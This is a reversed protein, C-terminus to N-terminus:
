DANFSYNLFAGFNNGSITVPEYYGDDFEYDVTTLRLGWNLQESSKFSLQAVIATASDFEVTDSGHFDVELEVGTHFGVGAAFRVTDTFQVYPLVNFEFRDFTIDANDATASDGHYSFSAEVGVPKSFTLGDLSIDLGAGITYGGGATVDQKDGDEYELEGVEDGGFAYAATVFPKFSAFKSEDLAQQANAEAASLLLALSAIGLTKKM